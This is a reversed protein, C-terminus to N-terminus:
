QWHGQVNAGKAPRYKGAQYNHVADSVSGEVDVIVEIGAAELTQFAKPGCNGTLVAAPRYRSVLVAAQIGAGQPAQLNSRNPVTEYELTESEVILFYPARGFRPDVQSKLDPGKASLAIKM